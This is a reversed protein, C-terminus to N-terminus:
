KKKKKGLRYQSLVGLLCAFLDAVQNRNGVLTPSDKAGVQRNWVNLILLWFAFFLFLSFLFCFCYKEARHRFHEFALAELQTCLNEDATERTFSPVFM